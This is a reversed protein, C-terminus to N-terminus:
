KRFGYELVWYSADLDALPERMKSLEQEPGHIQVDTLEVKGTGLMEQLLPGVNEILQQILPRRRVPPRGRELTKNLLLLSERQLYADPVVADVLGIKRARRADLRRGNFTLEPEITVKEKGQNEFRAFAQLQDPKETNRHTWGPRRKIWATSSWSSM